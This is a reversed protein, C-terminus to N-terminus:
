VPNTGDRIYEHNNHKINEESIEVQYEEEMSLNRGLPVCGLLKSKDTNKRKELM